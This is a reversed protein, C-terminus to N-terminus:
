KGLLYINTIEVSVLQIIWAYITDCWVFDFAIIAMSVGSYTIILM